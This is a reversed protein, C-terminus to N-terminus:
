IREGFFKRFCVISVGGCYRDSPHGAARRRPDGRRFYYQRRLAGGKSHGIGSRRGGAHTLIEGILIVDPDQRMASKLASSFDKTDITVERQNIVSKKDQHVFEIPDEITVIHCKRKENIADIISALTTSKGSGTTGTILVLGRVMETLRMVSQPLLLQDFNLMKSKIRRMVVSILGRQRFVNVRFRGVGKETFALDIEGRRLFHKKQEEGLLIELFKEIDKEHIPPASQPEVEGDIRYYPPSGTKLHIDSADKQIARQLLKLFSDREKSSM